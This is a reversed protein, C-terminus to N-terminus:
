LYYLLYKQHVFALNKQFEKEGFSAKLFAYFRAVIDDEFWEDDLIPIINDEDPVFSLADQSKGVKSLFENMDEGQDALILGAKDLTWPQNRRSIYARLTATAGSTLTESGTVNSTTKTISTKLVDDGYKIIANTFPILSVGTNSNVM